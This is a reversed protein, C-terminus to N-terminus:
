DGQSFKNDAKGSPLHFTHLLCLHVTLYFIGVKMFIDHTIFLVKSLARPPMWPEQSSGPLHASM